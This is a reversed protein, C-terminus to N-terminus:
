KDEELNLKSLIIKQHDKTCEEKALDWIIEDPIVDEPLAELLEESMTGIGMVISALEESSLNDKNVLAYEIIGERFTHAKNFVLNCIATKAGAITVQVNAKEELEKKRKKNM